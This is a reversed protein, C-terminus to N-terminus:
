APGRRSSRRRRGPREAEHTETERTEEKPSLVESINFLIPRARAIARASAAGAAAAADRSARTARGPPRSPRRSRERRPGAISDRGAGRRRPSRCARRRRRRARPEQVLRPEVQPVVHVRDHGARGARAIGSAPAEHEELPSEIRGADRRGEGFRPASRREVAPPSYQRRFSDSSSRSLGARDRKQSDPRTTAPFSDATAVARACRADPTGPNAAPRPRPRSNWRTSGAEVAQTRTSTRFVRATRSPLPAEPTIDARFDTEIAARWAVTSDSASETLATPRESSSSVRSSSSSERRPSVAAQRM